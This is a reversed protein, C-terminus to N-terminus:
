VLKRGAVHGSLLQNQLAGTGSTVFSFQWGNGVLAMIAFQLRGAQIANALPIFSFTKVQNGQPDVMQLFSQNAITYASTFDQVFFHYWSIEWLGQSLRFMNFLTGAGTAPPVEVETTIMFSRQFNTTASIGGYGAVDLPRSLSIVPQLVAPIELELEGSELIAGQRHSRQAGAIVESPVKM